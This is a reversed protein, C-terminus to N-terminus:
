QKVKVATLVMTTVSVLFSGASMWFPISLVNNGNVTSERARKSNPEVYVVDDQRLYYVPSSFVNNASTLDVVHCKQVGDEERYVKVASRQGNITLDGAKAIADLITNRDKELPLRGPANVEGLVSVYLNAFEVTVVADKIHNGGVLMGKVLVAIEERTLGGIHVKGLIPMDIDGQSDVTYYAIQNQGSGITSNVGLQRSLVPLNFVAALEPDKSNVVISLKDAVDAKLTQVPPLVVESEPTSDQFYTIQKEVNCSAVVGVVAAATIIQKLKM